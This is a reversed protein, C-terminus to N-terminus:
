VGPLARETAAEVAREADLAARALKPSALPTEETVWDDGHEGYLLSLSAQVFVQVGAAEAAAVLNGTGERWVKDSAAWVTRDVSAGTPLTGTLNVVAEVGDMGRRVADTELVDAEIPAGGLGKVVSGGERSRVLGVVEHGAERLQRVTPQGLVGSAGAVLVRM